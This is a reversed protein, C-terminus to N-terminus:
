NKATHNAGDPMEKLALQALARVPYFLDRGTGCGGNVVFREDQLAEEFWERTRPDRLRGLEKAACLRVAPSDAYVMQRAAPVLQSEDALAAAIVILMGRLEANRTGDIEARLDPILSPGIRRCEAILEDRRLETPMASQSWAYDAGPNDPDCEKALRELLGAFAPHPVRPQEHTLVLAVAMALVCAALILRHKM